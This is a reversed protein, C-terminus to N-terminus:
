GGAQEPLGRRMYLFFERNGKPGRLPSEMIGAVLLGLEYATDILTRFVLRYHRHERVVGGRPRAAPPVEFQPKVLCLISGAPHLLATVVPLIKKLSIFSADIVALDPPPQIDGPKLSRINTRELIVVRRDQRLKWALQGYGVDVAFVRAAENSLLCDTFGGTSAGVDLVTKGAVDVSFVALPQELKEGGRSVYAAGSGRLRIADSDKVPTGPKDVKHDGVIVRGAM